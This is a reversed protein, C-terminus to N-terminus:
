EIPIQNLHFIQSGLKGHTWCDSGVEIQIEINIDVNTDCTKGAKPFYLDRIRPNYMNIDDDGWQLILDTLSQNTSPQLTTPNACPSPSKEWRSRLGPTCPHNVEYEVSGDKIQKVKLGLIGYVYRKSLDHLIRINEDDLTIETVSTAIDGCTNGETSLTYEDFNLFTRPANSCITEGATSLEVGGGGDQLPATLTNEELLLRPDYHMWTGNDLQGLIPPDTEEIVDPIQYCKADILANTLIFEDNGQYKEDIMKLESDGTGINPLRLIHLAYSDFGDFDVAPNGGVVDYCDGSEVKM